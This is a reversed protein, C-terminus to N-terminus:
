RILGIASPGLNVILSAAAIALLWELAENHGEKKGPEFEAILEAPLFAGFLSRYLGGVVPVSFLIEGATEPTFNGSIALGLGDFLKGYWGLLDNAGAVLPKLVVALGAVAALRIPDVRSIFSGAIGKNVQPVLLDEIWERTDEKIELVHRRVLTKPRGRPEGGM